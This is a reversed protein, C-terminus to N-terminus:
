EGSWDYLGDEIGKIVDDLGCGGYGNCGESAKELDKVLREKEVFASM